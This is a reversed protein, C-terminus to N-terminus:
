TSETTSRINGVLRLKDVSYGAGWVPDCLNETSFERSNPLM